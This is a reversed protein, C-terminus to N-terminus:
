SSAVIRAIIQSLAEISFPKAIFGRVGLDLIRQAEENLAFGTTLIVRVDPRVARLALYTAKGDMRPMVMDLLVIDIENEARLLEVAALGDEIHTMRAASLPYAANSDQWTQEIYTM